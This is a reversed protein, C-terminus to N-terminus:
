FIEDINNALRFIGKYDGAQIIKLTRERETDEDVKETDHSLEKAISESTVAYNPAEEKNAIKQRVSNPVNYAIQTTSFYQNQAFRVHTLWFAIYSSLAGANSDYKEIGKMAGLLLQQHLDEHSINQDSNNHIFRHCYQIYQSQIIGKFETYKSFYYEVEQFITWLETTGYEKEMQRAKKPNEAVAIFYEQKRKLFEGIFNSFVNREIKLKELISIAKCPDACIAEILMPVSREFPVASIKRRRDNIINSLLKPLFPQMLNTKFMPQLACNTTKQLITYIQGGTLNHGLTREMSM